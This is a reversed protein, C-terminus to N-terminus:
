AVAEQMGGGCHLPLKPGGWVHPMYTSIVQRQSPAVDQVYEHVPVPEEPKFAMSQEPVFAIWTTLGTALQVM